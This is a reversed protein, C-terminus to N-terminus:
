PNTIVPCHSPLGREHLGPVAPLPSLVLRSEARWHWGLWNQLQSDPVIVFQREVSQQITMVHHPPYLVDCIGTGGCHEHM